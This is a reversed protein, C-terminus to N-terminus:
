TPLPIFEDADGPVVPFRGEKWDAKAQEIREPRSSVFNWWIHRPGDLPAGGLVIVRADEVAELQARRHPHLVLMRGVEASEAGCRVRGRVVYVARDQPENPLDLHAGAPIAADAYFMESFTHVPSTAGWATGVLVRVTADGVTVEPITEPEHYHWAPATEEDEKPLAVWLQIGSLNGGTEVLEDPSRESHTIGHGATMWGVAGPRVVQFSGLSDRHEIAGEWLYTVTALNIHPHPRVAMGGGPPFRGPGMHDFFVVPGVARRHAVPLVRRVTLGDLELPRGDISADVAAEHLGETRLRACDDQLTDNTSM